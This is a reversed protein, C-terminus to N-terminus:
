SSSDNPNPIAQGTSEHTPRGEQSWDNPLNPMGMSILWFNDEDIM